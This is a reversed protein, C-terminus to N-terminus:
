SVSGTAKAATRRPALWRALRLTTRARALSPQDAFPLPAGVDHEARRLALLVHLARAEHYTLRLLAAIVLPAVLLAGRAQLRAADVGVLAAVLPLMGLAAYVVWMAAPPGGTPVGDGPMRWTRQRRDVMGAVITDLAHAERRRVLWWHVAGAGALAVLYLAIAAPVLARGRTVDSASVLPLVGAALAGANVFVAVWLAARALLLDTWRFVARASLHVALVGGVLLLLTAWVVGIPVSVILLALGLVAPALAFTVVPRQLLDLPHSLLRTAM